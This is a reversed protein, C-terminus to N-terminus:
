LDKLNAFSQYTPSSGKEADSAKMGELQHKQRQTKYCYLCLATCTPASSSPLPSAPFCFYAACPVTVSPVNDSTGIKQTVIKPLYNVRKLPPLFFSYVKSRSQTLCNHVSKGGPM